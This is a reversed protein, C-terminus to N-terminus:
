ETLFRNFDWKVYSIPASRLLDTLVGVLHDVVEPRSLDLVLQHRSETRPRGPIGVAWDPHARFLESDENVMEPEIWLGFRLGLYEVARALGDIGAPLRGGASHGCGRAL